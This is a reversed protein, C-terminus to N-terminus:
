KRYEKCIGTHLADDVFSFSDSIIGIARVTIKRDTRSQQTFVSGDDFTAVYFINRVTQGYTGLSRCYDASNSLSLFRELTDGNTGFHLLSEDSGASGTALYTRYFIPFM